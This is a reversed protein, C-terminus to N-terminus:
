SFARPDLFGLYLFEQAEAIEVQVYSNMRCAHCCIDQDSGITRARYSLALTQSKQSSCSGIM